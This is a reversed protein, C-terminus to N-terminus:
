YILGLGIILEDLWNLHFGIAWSCHFCVFSSVIFAVFRSPALNSEFM